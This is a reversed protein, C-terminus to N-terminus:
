PNPEARSEICQESEQQQKSAYEDIKHLEEETGYKRVFYFDIEELSLGMTEPVCFYVVLAICFNFVALIIYFKYGINTIAVPTVEVIMFQFLWYCINGLALGKERIQLPLIEAPYAWSPGLWTLSNGGFYLFIMVIAAVGYTHSDKTLNALLGALVAFTV